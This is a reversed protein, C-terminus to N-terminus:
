EFAEALVNQLMDFLRQSYVYVRVVKLANSSDETLSQSLKKTWYLGLPRARELGDSPHHLTVPIRRQTIRIKTQNNTVDLLM